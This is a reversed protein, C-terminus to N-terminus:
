QSVEFGQERLSADDLRIRGLFRQFRSHDRVAPDRAFLTRSMPVQFSGVELARELEQLGEEVHDTLLLSWALFVRMAPQTASLDRLRGILRTVAERDGLAYHAVVRSMLVLGDDSDPIRELEAEVEAHRGLDALAWARLGHGWPYDPTTALLADFEVLAEESRGGLMLVWGLDFALLTNFPDPELLERYLAAAEDTRGTPCLQLAAYFDAALVDRNTADMARLSLEEAARWDWTTSIIFWAKGVLAGPQYPDLELARSSSDRLPGAVESSPVWINLNAWAMALGGYADAFGPDLDVAEEFDLISQETAERSYIGLRFLGRLYANYAELNSTGPQVLVNGPRVGLQTSLAGVIAQAIEEQIAFVDTLERDFVENWLQYGDNTSVLQATIRLRSGSRRVTGELM